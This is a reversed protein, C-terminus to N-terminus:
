GPLDETGDDEFDDPDYDERDGPWGHIFHIEMCSQDDYPVIYDIRPCLLPVGHPAEGCFACPEKKGGKILSLTM